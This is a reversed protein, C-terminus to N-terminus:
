TTLSTTSREKNEQFIYAKKLWALWEEKQLTSKSNNCIKCCPVSNELTYGVSNDVRDVGNYKFESYDMPNVLGRYRGRNSFMSPESGCYHCNSTILKSFNEISLNFEYGRRNAARKYNDWIDKKITIFGSSRIRQHVTEKQKCGCSKSKRGLTCVSVLSEKGCVCRCVYKKAQSNYGEVTWFGFKDGDKIRRTYAM